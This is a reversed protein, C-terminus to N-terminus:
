AAKTTDDPPSTAPETAQAKPVTKLSRVLTELAESSLDTALQSNPDLDLSIDVPKGAFRELLLKAAELRDRAKTGSVEGKLVSAFLELCIRGNDSIEAAM